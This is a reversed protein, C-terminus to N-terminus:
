YGFYCAPLSIFYIEMCIPSCRKRLLALSIKQKKVVKKKTKKINKRGNKDLKRVKM